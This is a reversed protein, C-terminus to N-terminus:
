FFINEFIPLGNDEFIRVSDSMFALDPNDVIPSLTGDYDLFLAISKGKASTMIQEFSTLGSPYKLQLIVLNQVLILWM